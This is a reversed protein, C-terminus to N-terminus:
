VEVRFMDSTLTKHEKTLEEELIKIHQALVEPRMQKLETITFYHNVTEVENDRLPPLDDGNLIARAATLEKTLTMNELDNLAENMFSLGEVGFLAKSLKESEAKEEPDEELKSLAELLDKKFWGEEDNKKDRIAQYEAEIDSM